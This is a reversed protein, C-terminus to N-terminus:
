SVLAARKWNFYTTNRLYEGNYKDSRGFAVGISKCWEMAEDWAAALSAHTTSASFGGFLTTKREYIYGLTAMKQTYTFNVMKNKAALLLTCM